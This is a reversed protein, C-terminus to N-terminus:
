IRKKGRALSAFIALFCLATFLIYAIHLGNRVAEIYTPSVATQWTLLLTVLSMSAAQGMNRALALMSSALGHYSPKVASMIASNNPAGFLASGIGTLILFAVIAAPSAEPWVAFCALGATTLALGASAISQAGCRDSWEGAKPSLLAMLIPQVLLILGSVAPSLGAIVQLYLSLLFSIAYTASYQILAALNSMSFTINRFIYLPLLPHYSRSEHIIFLALFALGLWLPLMTQTYSSLGWLFLVIGAISLLSSVINVFPAGHAYWEQRIPYIYVYALVTMLATAMFISRWGWLETLVGGLVPGLSLGLYTLSVCVGLIRGQHSDDTTALLLPMYSVYIGALAIGQLVRLILFVAFSLSPVASALTTAAFALLSWAYTRRRGHIDSVKGLPLLCAATPILFATVAWSMTDPLLLFEDSMAPIAINLATALFSGAFSILCISYFIRKETSM